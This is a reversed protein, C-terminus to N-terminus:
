FKRPDPVAGLQQMLSMNNIVGKTEVIKGNEIRFFSAGDWEVRKGTARVLGVPGNLDGKHTATAKFYAAVYDGEAVIWVVEHHIDPFMRHNDAIFEKLGAAGPKRWPPLKGVTYDPAFLEDILDLKNQSWVEDYFRRVLAKNAEKEDM